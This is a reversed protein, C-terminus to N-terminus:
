CPTFLSKERDKKSNGILLKCLFVLVNYTALAGISCIWDAKDSAIKEEDEGKDVKDLIEYHYLETAKLADLLYQKVNKSIQGNHSLIARESSLSLIKKISNCYHELSFFYNPWFINKDPDFYGTMDGIAVTKEKEEFFSIHCPSHGPTNFVSWKIGNGLDIISNEDVVSDATFIYEDLEDPIKDIDGKELMINGIMKDTPMFEKIFREKKLFNEATVGALVKIHPWAKRLRPVGGVHDGHTHTLGIYKIRLPDIGLHKIQSMIIDFTPGTGGEIIMADEGISLYVPFSNTGLQLLHPTLEIIKHKLESV